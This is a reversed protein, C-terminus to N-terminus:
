QSSEVQVFFGLLDKLAGTSLHRKSQLFGVKGLALSRPWPFLLQLPSSVSDAVGDEPAKVGELYM